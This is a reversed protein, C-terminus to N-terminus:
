LLERILGQAQKHSVGLKRFALPGNGDQLVPELEELTPLDTRKWFLGIPIEDGWRYGLDLAQHFDSPDHGLEELLKV